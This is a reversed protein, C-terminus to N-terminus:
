YNCRTIPWEGVCGNLPHNNFKANWVQELDMWINEKFLSLNFYILLWVSWPVHATSLPLYTSLHINFTNCLHKKLFILSLTFLSPLTCHHIKSLLRNGVYIYKQLVVFTVSASCLLLICYLCHGTIIGLLLENLYM